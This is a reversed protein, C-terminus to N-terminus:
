RIKKVKLKGTHVVILKVKNEKDSKMEILQYEPTIIKKKLDVPAILLQEQYTRLVVFPHKEGQNLILYETTSEGRMGGYLFAVGLAILVLVVSPYMYIKSNIMMFVLLVALLLLSPFLVQKVPLGYVTLAVITGIILMSSFYFIYLRLRKEGGGNEKFLGTTHMVMFFILVIILTTFVAAGTIDKIGLEIFMTPIRYHSYFGWLYSFVLGYACATLVTILVALDLTSILDKISKV